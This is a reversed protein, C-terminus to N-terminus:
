KPPSNEMMHLAQRKINIYSEECSDRVTESNICTTYITYALLGELVSLIDLAKEKDSYNADSKGTEEILKSVKDFMEDRHSKKQTM